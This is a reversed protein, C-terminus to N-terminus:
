SLEERLGEVARTSFWGDMFVYMRVVSRLCATPVCACITVPIKQGWPLIRLARYAYGARALCSVVATAFLFFFFFVCFVAGPSLLLHLLWALPPKSLEGM